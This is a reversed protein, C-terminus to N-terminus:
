PFIFPTTVKLFYFHLIKPQKPDGLTVSVLAMRYLAHSNRNAKWLLLSSTYTSIRRHVGGCGFRSHAPASFIAFRPRWIGFMDQRQRQNLDRALPFSTWFWFSVVEAALFFPSIRNRGYRVTCIPVESGSHTGPCAVASALSGLARESNRLGCVVFPLMQFPVNQFWCITRHTLSHGWLPLWPDLWVCQVQYLFLASTCFAAFFVALQLAFDSRFQSLIVTVVDILYAWLHFLASLLM